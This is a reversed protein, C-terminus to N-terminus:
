AVYLKGSSNTTSLISSHGRRTAIKRGGQEGQFVVDTSAAIVQRCAFTLASRLGRSPMQCSWNIRLGSGFDGVEARICRALCGRDTM